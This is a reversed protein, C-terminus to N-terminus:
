AIKTLVGFEFGIEEIDERELIKGEEARKKLRFILATDDVTQRFSFRNMEIKYGLTESMIEATAEHGIASIIEKDEGAFKNILEKAEGTSVLQFCFSGYVTLVPANFFILRKM